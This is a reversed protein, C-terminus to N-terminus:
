PGVTQRVVGLREVMKNVQDLSLSRNWVDPVCDSAMFDIDFKMQSFGAEAAEAAMKRWHDLNTIDHPSSRDLYVRAGDRFKGGLLNYVPTNLAKGILDCLAIEVGSISWLVPGWPVATPSSTPCAIIGGPMVGQKAEAHHPPLSAYLMESVIANIQFPDRGKFYERIYNIAQRMGMFDDVEGLGYLGADTDVRIIIKAIKAGSGGGVDHIRPGWLRMM